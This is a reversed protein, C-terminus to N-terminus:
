SNNKTGSKAFVVYYMCFIQLIILYKIMNCNPYIINRQCDSEYWTSFIYSSDLCKSLTYINKILIKLNICDYLKTVFSISKKWRQNKWCKCKVDAMRCGTTLYFINKLNNFKMHKNSKKSSINYDNTLGIVKANVPNM